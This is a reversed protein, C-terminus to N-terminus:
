KTVINPAYVLEFDDLHLVSSDSGYFYDGYKSASCVVILHTPTTTTSHYTLPINLEEWAGNSSSNKTMQGYAVVRPDNEWDIDTTMEYGDAEANAVHFQETVLACFIQCEDNAGKAPAGIGSPQTGRNISGPAYSLYGKLAIPRDTFPVGWDLKAGKTGILGIFDGTFLSAAALKVVAWKTGLKASSNGGHKFDTDQTTVSGVYNAAGGNSSNWYKGDAELGCYDIKGESYWNEFGGNYLATGTNQFTTTFTLENSNVDVGDANYVYRYTYATWPSLEELTYSYDDGENTLESNAVTTWDTAGSAKWQLIVASADFNSTKTTVAGELVAYDSWASAKTAALATSSKRPVEITYTYTHTADDIYVHTEGMNGADAVKYTIIFHDRPNVDTISNNQAHGVGSKNFTTLRLNLTAAPFYASSTTEGMTFVQKAVNATASSVNVNAEEFNDIFSKDWLVTVKVNAQTCTLTATTIHKATVTATVEGTYYPADFGSGSGDWGASHATITYTGPDLTINGKFNDDNAVDDTQLVINGSADLLEVHLTKPAYNEPNNSVRTHTSVLTNVELKLYGQESTAEIDSSCSTYLVFATLLSFLYIIRKM